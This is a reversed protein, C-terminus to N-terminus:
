PQRRAELRAVICHPSRRHCSATGAAMAARKPSRRRSSPELGRWLGAQRRLCTALPNGITRPAGGLVSALPTTSQVREKLSRALCMSIAQTLVDPVDPALRRVDGIHAEHAAKLKMLSNGGSLPPRGTLLHWWLCGCAYLDSAMTPACGDVIREPALYDYAECRLEHFSYGESPRVIGRLGPMPVVVRGSAHLLLGSACLDGHPVGLREFEGLRALMERAIHLVVQPPFRGNEVMWESATIGDVTACAAWVGEGSAGSDEVVGSYPGRLSTLQEVIAALRRAATATPVQPRPVTCLRVLRGTEVHRAAHCSAYHPGTLVQEIVYPGHLLADGRGANIELAQLPTLIGAQVLADLWVSDFDPVDGALRRVRRAVSRVDDATALRLRTLLAVLNASPELRM